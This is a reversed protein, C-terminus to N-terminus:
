DYPSIHDAHVDFVCQLANDFAGFVRTFLELRRDLEEDATKTEAAHV